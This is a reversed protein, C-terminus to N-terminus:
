KGEKPPLLTRLRRGAAVLHARMASGAADMDGSAVADLIVRHESITRGKTEPIYYTKPYWIRVISQITSGVTEFIPNRAAHAIALHFRTDSEMFAGHDMPEVRMEEITTDLQSVLDDTKNSAARRACEVEILVRVEVFDDLNGESLLLGWRFGGSLLESTPERVFSGEGARAELVGLVVLSKVAERITSRGVQFRIALEKESPILDGPKWVRKMILDTLAKVIEQPLTARSVPRILGTTDDMLPYQRLIDGNALDRRPNSSGAHRLSTTSNSKSARRGSARLL